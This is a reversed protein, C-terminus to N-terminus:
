FTLVQYGDSVLQRYSMNTGYDELLDVGASKVSDAVGFAGACFSCAGSINPQLEAYLGHLDHKPNTLEGIWKAGAGSFIVKIDDGGQKFEKAATLGNVIRGLAEKGETDSLIVFAVKSM